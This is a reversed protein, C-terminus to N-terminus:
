FTGAPLKPTTKATVGPVLSFTKGSVGFTALRYGHECVLENMTADPGVVLRSRHHSSQDLGSMSLTSYLNLQRVLNGATPWAGKVEILAAWSTAPREWSYKGDSHWEITPWSLVEYEVGIDCFGVIRSYRGKESWHILPVEMRKKTVRIPSLSAWQPEIGTLRIADAYTVKRDRVGDSTVTFKSDPSFPQLKPLNHLGAVLSLLAADDSFLTTLIRDHDPRDVEADFMDRTQPDIKQRASGAM